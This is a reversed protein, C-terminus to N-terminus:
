EDTTKRLSEIAVETSTEAFALWAMVANSYRSVADAYDRGRQQIAVIGASNLPEADAAIALAREYNLYAMQLAAHADSLSQWLSQSRIPKPILNDGEACEKYGGATCTSSWPLITTKRLSEIVLRLDQAL